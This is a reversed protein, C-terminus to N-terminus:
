FTFIFGVKSKWTISFPHKWNNAPEAEIGREIQSLLEIPGPLSETKKGLVGVSWCDLRTWLCSHEERTGWGSFFFILWCLEAEVIDCPSYNCYRGGVQQTEGARCKMQASPQDGCQRSPSTSMWPCCSTRVHPFSVMQSNNDGYYHTDLGVGAPKIIRGLTNLSANAAWDDTNVAFNDMMYNFAATDPTWRGGLSM